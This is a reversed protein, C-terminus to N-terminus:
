IAMELPLPQAGLATAKAKEWAAIAALDAPDILEGVHLEITEEGREKAQLQLRHLVKLRVVLLDGATLLTKM